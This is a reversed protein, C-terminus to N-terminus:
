ILWSLNYVNDSDSDIIEICDKRVKKPAPAASEDNLEGNNISLLVSQNTYNVTTVLCWTESSAM